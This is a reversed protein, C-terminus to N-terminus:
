MIAFRRVKRRAGYLPSAGNRMKEATRPSPWFEAVRRGGVSKRRRARRLAIEDQCRVTVLPELRQFSLCSGM